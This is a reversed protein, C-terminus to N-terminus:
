ERQAGDDARPPPGLALAGPGLLWAQGHAGIAAGEAGVTVLDVSNSSLVISLPLVDEGDGTVRGSVILLGDNMEFGRVVFRRAVEPWSPPRVGIATLTEELDTWAGCRGSEVRAMVERLSLVPRWAWATTRTWFLQDMDGILACADANCSVAEWKGAGALAEHWTTGEDESTLVRRTHDENTCGIVIAKANRAAVVHGECPVLAHKWASPPGEAPTVVELPKYTLFMPRPEHSKVWGVPIRQLVPERKTGKTLRGNLAIERWHKGEDLSLYVAAEDPEHIGRWGHIGWLTTGGGAVISGAQDRSHPKWTRGGDTSALIEYRRTAAVALDLRPVALSEIDPQKTTSPSRRLSSTSCNRRSAYLAWPPATEVTSATSSPAALSTAVPAQQARPTTAGVSCSGVACAVV